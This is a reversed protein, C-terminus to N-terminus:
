LSAALSRWRSEPFPQVCIKDRLKSGEQATNSRPVCEVGNHDSDKGVKGEDVSMPPLIIPEQYLDQCDTVLVDLTKDQNKNTVGRVTQRMSPDLSLLLGLNMNNIDAGM